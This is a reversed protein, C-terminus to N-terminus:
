ADASPVELKQRILKIRNSIKDRDSVCYTIIAIIVISALIVDDNNRTPFTFTVLFAILFAAFFASVFLIVDKRKM